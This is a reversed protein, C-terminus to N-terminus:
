DRNFIKRWAETRLETKLQAVCQRLESSHEARQRASCKADLLARVEPIYGNLEANFERQSIWRVENPPTSYMLNLFKNPVNMEEFYRRLTNRMEVKAMSIDKETVGVPVHKIQLYHIGLRGAWIFERYIGAVYLLFCASVCQYNRPNTLDSPHIIESGSNRVTPPPRSPADTSLRLHRILYGIKLAEIVHGGPSALFVEGSMKKFNSSESLFNRVAIYDGTEINGELILVGRVVKLKEIATARKTWIADACLFIGAAAVVRTVKSTLAGLFSPMISTGISAFRRSGGTKKYLGFGNQLHRSIAIL